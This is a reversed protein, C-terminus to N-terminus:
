MSSRAMDQYSSIAEIRNIPLVAGPIEAPVAGTRARAIPVVFGSMHWSASLASSVPNFIVDRLASDAM